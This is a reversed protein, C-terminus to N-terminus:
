PKRSCLERWRELAHHDPEKDRAFRLQVVTWVRDQFQPHVTLPYLRHWRYRDLLRLAAGWSDVYRSVRPYESKDFEDTTSDNASTFYRWKTGHPIGYLTISGGEAGIELIVESSEESVFEKSSKKQYGLRDAIQGVKRWFIPSTDTRLRWLWLAAWMPLDHSALRCAAAIRIWDANRPDADPNLVLQGDTAYTLTKEPGSLFKLAEGLFQKIQTWEDDTLLYRVEAVVRLSDDDLLRANEFEIMSLESVLADVRKDPTM